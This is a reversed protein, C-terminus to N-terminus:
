SDCAVRCFGVGPQCLCGPPGADKACFAGPGYSACSADVTCENCTGAGGRGCRTEGAMTQFCYCGSGCEIDGSMCSNAGAPCNGQGTVCQSQDCIKGLPCDIDVCCEDVVICAGKCCQRGVPCEAHACCNSIPICTGQCDKQGAPCACTGNQCTKGGGCCTKGCKKTGGKCKKRKKRKKKRAEVEAIGFREVLTWSLGAGALQHVARRSSRIAALRRVIRDFRDADM